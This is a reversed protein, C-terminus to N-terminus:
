NDEDIGKKIFPFCIIALLGGCLATILQPWSFMISLMKVQPEKIDPIYQLIFPVTTSLFLFKAISAIALAIYAMIKKDKRYFLIYVIVLVANALAIAPMIIPFIPGIGIITAFVSSLIGITVGSKADVLMTMTILIFNVLSGTILQSVSFPGLIVAIPPIMKGILQAIIILTVGVATKVLWNTKSNKM